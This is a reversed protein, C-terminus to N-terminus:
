PGHLRKKDIRTREQGLFDCSILVV